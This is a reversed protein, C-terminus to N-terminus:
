SVIKRPSAQKDGPPWWAPLKEFFRVILVSHRGDQAPAWIAREEIRVFAAFRRMNVDPGSIEFSFEPEVIERDRDIRSKWGMFDASNDAVQSRLAIDEFAFPM